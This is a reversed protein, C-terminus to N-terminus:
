QPDSWVEQGRSNGGGEETLEWRAIPMTIAGSEADRLRAVLQALPLTPLRGGGEGEPTHDMAGEQELCNSAWGPEKTMPTDSILSSSRCTSSQLM